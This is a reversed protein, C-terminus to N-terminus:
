LCFPARHISGENALYFPARDISSKWTNNFIKTSKGKSLFIGHYGNNSLNNGDILNDFSQGVYIGEVTNSHIWSNVISNNNGNIIIGEYNATSESDSISTFNGEIKIGAPNGFSGSGSAFVGSVNVYDSSITIVDGKEKGLIITESSGNGILSISRNVDIIEEYEGSFVRVIDGSESANIADQVNKYDAGGDDDVTIIRGEAEWSGAVQLVLLLAGALVVLFCCRLIVSKGSM